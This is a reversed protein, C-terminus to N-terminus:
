DMLIFWMKGHSLLVVSPGFHYFNRSYLFKFWHLCLTLTNVVVGAACFSSSFFFTSLPSHTDSCLSQWVGIHSSFFHYSDCYRYEHGLSFIHMICHEQLVFVLCKLTMKEFLVSLCKQEKGTDTSTMDEKDMYSWRDQLMSGRKPHTLILSSCMRWAWTLVSTSPITRSSSFPGSAYPSSPVSFSSSSSSRLSGWPLGTTLSLPPALHCLPYGVARCRCCLRHRWTTATSNSKVQHAPDRQNGLAVPTKTAAHVPQNVKNDWGQVPLDLFWFPGLDRLSSTVSWCSFPWSSESIPSM